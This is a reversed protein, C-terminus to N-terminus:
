CREEEGSPPVSPGSFHWAPMYCALGICSAKQKPLLTHKKEGYFALHM